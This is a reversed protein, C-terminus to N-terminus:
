IPIIFEWKTGIDNDSTLKLEAHIKHVRYTLNSIGHRAKNSEEKIGIGDDKVSIYLKNARKIFIIEAREAKSHRVINTIVEKFILWLDHRLNLNSIEIVSEDVDITYGINKSEFMEAAYRKCKTIFAHWDDNEPDIAWIIDNIKEKAELASEDIRKLFQTHSTSIGTERKAAESFFSISSLTASLDDHLDRAIRNRTEEEKLLYFMRYKFLSYISGIILAMVALTFYWTKWFPPKIYFSITKSYTSVENRNDLARLRFSYEGGSLGSFNITRRGNVSIWNDSLGSLQYQLTYKEPNIFNLYSFNFQIFDQRGNFDLDDELLTNLVNGDVNMEYILIKGSLYIEEIESPHFRVFGKVGGFYMSGRSDKFYAGGNFETSLLGDTLTYNFFHESEPNFRSIGANTSLWLQHDSDELIGYVVNSLLGDETTYGKFSETENSYLYLGSYTGLWIRNNSDKYISQVREPKRSKTSENDKVLSLNKFNKKQPSYSILGNAFTGLLFEDESVAEIALVRDLQLYGPIFSTDQVKNNHILNLGKYLGALVDNNPKIELSLVSQDTLNNITTVDELNQQDNIRKLGSGDTAVWIRGSKDKEMAIISENDFAEVRSFSGSSFDFETLGNQETGILINGDDLENFSLIVDSSLKGQTTNTSYAQFQYRNRFYNSLGSNNTGIWIIGNSDEYLTRISNSQLQNPRLNSAVFHHIIEGQLDTLFIGKSDTAIWVRNVKDIEISSIETSSISKTLSTWKELALSFRLVGQNKTGLLIEKNNLHEFSRIEENKLFFKVESSDVTILGNSTALLTTEGEVAIDWITSSLELEKELVQNELDYSYLGDSRTGILIHNGALKLSTINTELNCTASQVLECLKTFTNTRPDLRDVGAGDTGIWIFGDKDKLLARVSRYSLSNNQDFSPYFSAFNNADFRNLGDRTGIWIYGLDDELFAYVTSQSLGEELSYNQFKFPM